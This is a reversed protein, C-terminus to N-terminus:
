GDLEVLLDEAVSRAAAVREDAGPHGTGDVHELLEVVHGVRRVVTDADPDGDALDTAVAQAEGIWRAATREVPLEETARLERALDDLRSALRDM